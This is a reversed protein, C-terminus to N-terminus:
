PVVRARVNTLGAGDSAGDDVYILRLVGVTHGDEDVNASGIGAFVADSEHYPALMVVLEGLHDVGDVVSAGPEGGCAVELHIFAGELHGAVVIALVSPPRAHFLILGKRWCGALGM